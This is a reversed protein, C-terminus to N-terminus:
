VAISADVTLLLPLFRELERKQSDLNQHTKWGTKVNRHCAVKEPLFQTSDLAKGKYQHEFGGVSAIEGAGAAAPNPLIM